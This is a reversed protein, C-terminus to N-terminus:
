TQPLTVELEYGFFTCTASDPLDRATSAAEAEAKLTDACETISARQSWVLAALGALVVVGIVKQTISAMVRAVVVALLVLVLVVVIAITRATEVTVAQMDARYAVTGPCRRIEPEDAARAHHLGVTVAHGVLVGHVEGRLSRRAGDQWRQVHGDSVFEVLSQGHGIGFPTGRHGRDGSTMGAAEVGPCTQSFQSAVVDLLVGIEADPVVSPEISQAATAPAPAPVHAPGVLRITTEQTRQATQTVHCRGDALDVFRLTAVQEELM